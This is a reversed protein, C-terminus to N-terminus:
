IKELYNLEVNYVNEKRVRFPTVLALFERYVTVM